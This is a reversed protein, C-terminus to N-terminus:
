QQDQLQSGLVVGAQGLGGQGGRHRVGRAWPEETGTHRGREGM